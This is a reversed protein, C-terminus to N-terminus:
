WLHWQGYAIVYAALLTNASAHAVVADGMSGRRKWVLGFLIGALIGAIWSGGHLLGFVVSSAALALWTVGRPSVSEFDTSVFRRLLYGRFALEEALPVTVVAALTRLSIWASRVLPSAAALAPPMGRESRGFLRDCAIWIAFVLLGSAIGMWSVRWELSLYTKRLDM